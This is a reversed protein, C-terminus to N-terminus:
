TSATHKNITLKNHWHKVQMYEIFILIGWYIIGGASLLSIWNGINHPPFAFVFRSALLLAIISLGWLRIKRRSEVTSFEVEWTYTEATSRSFFRENARYRLLMLPITTAPILLSVGLLLWFPDFTSWLHQQMGSIVIYGLLFGYLRLYLRCERQWLRDAELPMQALARLRRRAYVGQLLGFLSILLAIPAFPLPGNVTLLMFAVMISGASLQYASQAQEILRKSEIALLAQDPKDTHPLLLPVLVQIHTGKGPQSQLELTGRLNHAREQLNALGMGRKVLESVFGQGDDRISLSLKKDQLQLTLWVHSARAHRAINACAEQVIRFLEEEAHPPLQDAAPLDGIKCTVQAGTRYGLAEAQTQIAERLSGHELPTSRLQQLLARMEVQAEKTSRQIDELAEGASEMDGRMHAKIAAASMSISFIQQKISDHLDRALRNREEQAAAERAQKLIQEHYESQRQEQQTSRELHTRLTRLQSFLQEYPWLLLTTDPLRPLRGCALQEFLAELKAYTYQLNATLLLGSACAGLLACLWTLPLSIQLGSLWGFLGLAVCGALAHSLLMHLSVISRTRIVPAFSNSPIM